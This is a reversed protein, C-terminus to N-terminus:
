VTRSKKLINFSYKEQNITTRDKFSLARLKKIQYYDM